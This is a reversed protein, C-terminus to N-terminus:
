YVAFTANQGCITDMATDGREDRCRLCSTEKKLTNKLSTRVISCVPYEISSSTIKKFKGLGEPRM